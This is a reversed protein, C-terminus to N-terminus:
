KNKHKTKDFDSLDWAAIKARAEKHRALRLLEEYQSDTYKEQWEKALAIKDKPKFTNVAREMERKLRMRIELLREQDRDDEDGTHSIFPM